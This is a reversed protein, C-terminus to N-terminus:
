RQRKTSLTNPKKLRVFIVLNSLSSPTLSKATVIGHPRPNAAPM